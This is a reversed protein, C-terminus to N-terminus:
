RLVHSVQMEGADERKLLTGEYKLIPIHVPAREVRFFYVKERTDITM